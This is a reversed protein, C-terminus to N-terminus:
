EAQVQFLFDLFFFFVRLFAAFNFLIFIRLLLCWLCDFCKERSAMMCFSTTYVMKLIFYLHLIRKVLSHEKKAPQSESLSVLHSCLELKSPCTPSKQQICQHAHIHTHSPRCDELCFFVPSDCQLSFSHNIFPTLQIVHQFPISKHLHFM